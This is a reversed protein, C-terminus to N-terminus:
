PELAAAIRVAIVAQYLRNLAETYGTEIDIFRRQEAIVDLPQTRGLESIKRVVELNEQAQTRVGNRYIELSEAAKQQALLATAVEHTVVLEAYERTRRAAELQAAAAAIAGENRNRLPLTISVGATLYHFIGQVPRVAGTATLGNINFSSDMRQYNASVTMDPRSETEAQRFRAAAAQEAARASELDPRSALARRIAEDRGIAIREQELTGRISLRDEPSLGILRKLELVHVDLRGELDARMADIRNVEVRLLNADLPATAGQEVRTETLRLARRNLDLLNETVELNRLSALVDGFKSEVERRLRRNLEAQEFETVRVGAEAVAV